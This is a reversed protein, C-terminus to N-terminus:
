MRNSVKRMSSSVMEITSFFQNCSFDEKLVLETIKYSALEMQIVLM